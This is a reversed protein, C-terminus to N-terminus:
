GTELFAIRRFQVFIEHHSLHKKITLKVGWEIVLNIILKKINQRRNKRNKKNVLFAAFISTESDFRMVSFIELEKRERETSHTLNEKRKRTRTKDRKRM